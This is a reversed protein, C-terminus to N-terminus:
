PKKMRAACSLSCMGQCNVGLPCAQRCPALKLRLNDLICTDVCIGCTTCKDPDVTINDSLAELMNIRM